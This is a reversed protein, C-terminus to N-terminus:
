ASSPMRSKQRDRPSPSTYLLCRIIDRWELDSFEGYNSLSRGIFIDYVSFEFIGHRCNERRTGGDRLEMEAANHEICAAHAETARSCFDCRRADDIFSDCLSSPTALTGNTQQDALQPLAGCMLLAVLELSLLMRGSAM